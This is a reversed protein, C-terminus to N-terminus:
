TCPVNPDPVLALDVGGEWFSPVAIAIPGSVTTAGDNMFMTPTATGAGTVTYTGSWNITGPGVPASGAYTGGDPGTPTFILEGNIEGTVTMRVPADFSCVGGQILLAGAPADVRFRNSVGITVSAQGIGRRSTSVLDITASSGPETGATYTITNPTTDLRTPAISAEGSLTADVPEDLDVGETVHRTAVDITVEAGPAVSDPATAVVSVCGGDRVNSRREALVGNIVDMAAQRGDAFMEADEARPSSTVSQSARNVTVEGADISPTPGSLNTVRVAQSVDVFANRGAADTRDSQVNLDIQTDAVEASDDFQVTVDATFEHRARMTTADISGEFEIRGEVRFTLVGSTDPCIDGSAKASVKSRVTNGDDSVFEQEHSFEAAGAGATVGVTATGNWGNNSATATISTSVPEGVNGGLRGLSSVVSGLRAMPAPGGTAPQQPVARAPRRFGQPGLTAVFQEVLETMQQELDVATSIVAPDLEVGAADAARVALPRDDDFAEAGFVFETDAFLTEADTETTAVSEAVSTGSSDDSSSGCAATVVLAAALLGAPLTRGRRV